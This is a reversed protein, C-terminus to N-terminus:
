VQTLYTTGELVKKYTAMLSVQEEQSLPSASVKDQYSKMLEQENYSVSKLVDQVSDGKLVHDIRFGDDTLYVDVSCTDGFLNHLDGLTEQYAGVLFFGMLYDEGKPPAPPLPLSSEIGQGDVYSYL